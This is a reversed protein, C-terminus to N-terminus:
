DGDDSILYDSPALKWALAINRLVRNLDFNPIEEPEKSRFLLLEKDGHNIGHSIPYDRSLPVLIRDRDELNPEASLIGRHANKANVVLANRCMIAERLLPSASRHMSM